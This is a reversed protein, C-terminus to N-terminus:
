DKNTALVLDAFAAATRLPVPIPRSRLVRTCIEAWLWRFARGSLGQASLGVVPKQRGLQGCSNSFAGSAVVML